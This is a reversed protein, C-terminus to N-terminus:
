IQLCVLIGGDENIGDEMKVLKSIKLDLGLKNWAGRKKSLVHM